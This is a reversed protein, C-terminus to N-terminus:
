AARRKLRRREHTSMGGWLGFPEDNDLAYQLCLDKVPCLSCLERAMLFSNSREQEFEFFLDPANQCPVVGGEAQIARDLDEWRTM